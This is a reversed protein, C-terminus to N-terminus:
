ASSPSAQGEATKRQHAEMTAKTKDKDCTGIGGLVHPTVTM